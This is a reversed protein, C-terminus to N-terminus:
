QYLLIRENILQRLNQSEITFNNIILNIKKWTMCIRDDHLSICKTNEYRGNHRNFVIRLLYPPLLSMLSTVYFSVSLNLMNESIHFSSKYELDKRVFEISKIIWPIILIRKKLYNIAYRLSNVRRSWRM